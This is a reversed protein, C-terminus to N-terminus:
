ARQHRFLGDYLHFAYKIFEDCRELCAQEGQTCWLIIEVQWVEDDFQYIDTNKDDVPIHINRQPIIEHGVM